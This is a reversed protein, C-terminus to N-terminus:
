EQTIAEFLQKESSLLPKASWQGTMLQELMVQFLENFYTIEDELAVIKYDCLSLLDTIEHQEDTKPLPIEFSKVNGQNISSQAVARKAISRIRKRSQESILYFAIFKSSLLKEDVQFRMMNSEFVTEEAFNPILTCKGLHSLSNVRNIVIDNECLRYKDVEEPSLSVRNFDLNVFRGDNDFDNIRVIPTGEGYLEQPRYLGNQPGDVIFQGLQEVQWSKPIKGVTTEKLEEGRTGHSFLRQMLAAKRERELAVEQQRAAIAEQVVRLTGAIAKQEELPPLFLPLRELDLRSVGKITTGRKRNEFYTQVQGTKFQYAVFEPEIIENRLVVGTLDQSIAINIENIAAKGVGVRTGVILNGKPVLHTSSQELGSQSIFRQGSELRTDDESIPASTTWPIEGDWHLPEDTSPTGGSIFDRTIEQLQAIRWDQPLQNPEM